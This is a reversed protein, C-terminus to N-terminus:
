SWGNVCVDWSNVSRWLQITNQLTYAGCSWAETSSCRTQRWKRAITFLVATFVSSCTSRSQPTCQQTHQAYAPDYSLCNQLKPFEESQNGPHSSLKWVWWCHGLTGKRRVTMQWWHKASRPWESQPSIFIEFSNQNAIVRIALSSVMQFVVKLIDKPFEINLNM